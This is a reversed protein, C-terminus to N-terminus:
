YIFIVFKVQKSIPQKLLQRWSNMISTAISYPNNFKQLQLEILYLTNFQRDVNWGKVMKALITKCNGYYGLTHRWQPRWIHLNLLTADYTAM